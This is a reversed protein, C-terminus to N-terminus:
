QRWAPGIGALTSSAWWLATAPRSSHPGPGSLAPTFRVEARLRHLDPGSTTFCIRHRGLKSDIELELAYGPGAESRRCTFGNGPVHVARLALGGRGERRIIAWISDRGECVEVDLDGLAFRGHRKMSSSELEERLALVYPSIGEVRHKLDIGAM